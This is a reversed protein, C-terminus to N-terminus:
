NLFEVVKGLGKLVAFLSNGNNGGKNLYKGSIQTVDEKPLDVYVIQYKDPKHMGLREEAKQKVKQLNINKEMDVILRFNENKIEEYSKQMKNINYNLETIYAYRALLILLFGFATLIYLITRVKRKSNSKYTKKAKLVKNNEYVDYKRKEAISGHVYENGTKIM